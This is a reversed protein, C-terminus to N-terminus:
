TLNNWTVSAEGKLYRHFALLTEEWVSKLEPLLEACRDWDGQSMAAEMQAAVTWLAQAGVFASCGKLEQIGKRVVDEQREHVGSRVSRLYDEGEGEFVGILEHELQRDGSALRQIRRVDLSEGQSQPPRDTPDASSTGPARIHKEIVGLLTEPLVPKTLYDDMGAKLCRERNGKVADATLAVIPTHKKGAEQKRIAATAQFGDMVPMQCDMIVLAYAGSSFAAVGEQGNNAVDCPYGATKLM